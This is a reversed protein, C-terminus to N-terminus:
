FSDLIDVARKMNEKIPHMYRQTTALNSHALYEKVTLLDAGRSVLRTGVTHRLDHFRFNEIGARELARNFGTKITTYPKNTDPNIFVYGKQKIGIKELEVRFKGSLPIQIKKHGKNDQKLVELFGMELNIAEWKLNLINSLRLGTTLACIVIPRLHESLEKMLREEENETLYRLIENDEKLKSVMKCPNLMNLRKNIIILNFAKCLSSYYRNVSSNKLGKKILSQKLKEIDLPTIDAIKADEGFFEKFIKVKHKNQIFQHESNNTESYEMFEKLMESLTITEAKDKKGRHILAIDNKIEAEFELAQSKDIAGRCLGHKRIGFVQCKYYWKGNKKYVSM